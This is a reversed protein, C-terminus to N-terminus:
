LYKLQYDHGQYSHFCGIICKIIFFLQYVPFNQYSVFHTKDSNLAKNETLSQKLNEHAKNVKCDWKDLDLFLCVYGHRFWFVLAFYFFYVSM